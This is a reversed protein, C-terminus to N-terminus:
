LLIYASVLPTASPTSISFLGLDSGLSTTKLEGRFTARPNWEDDNNNLMMGYM